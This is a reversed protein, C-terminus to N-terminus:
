MDFFTQLRSYFSEDSIQDWFQKLQAKNISDDKIEWRRALADFLKGGFENSEQGMGAMMILLKRKM